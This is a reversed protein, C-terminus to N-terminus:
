QVLLEFSILTCLKNCHLSLLNKSRKEAVRFKLRKYSKLQQDLLLLKFILIELLTNKEM